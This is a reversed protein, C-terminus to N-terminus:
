PRQKVPWTKRRFSRLSPTFCLNPAIPFFPEIASISRKHLVSFSV